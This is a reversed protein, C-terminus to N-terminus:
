RLRCLFHIGDAFHAIRKGCFIVENTFCEVEIAQREIAVAEVCHTSPYTLTTSCLKDLGRRPVWGYFFIPDFEFLAM